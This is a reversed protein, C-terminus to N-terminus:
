VLRDRLTILANLKDMLQAAELVKVDGQYAQYMQNALATTREKRAVTWASKDILNLISAHDTAEQTADPYSLLTNQIAAIDAIVDTKNYTGIIDGTLDDTEIWWKFGPLKTLM